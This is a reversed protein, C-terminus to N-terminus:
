VPLEMLDDIAPPRIQAGAKDIGMDVSAVPRAKMIPAYLRDSIHQTDMQLPSRGRDERRQGTEGMFLIKGNKAEKGIQIKATFSDGVYLTNM